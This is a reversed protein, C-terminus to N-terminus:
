KKKFSFSEIRLILKEIFNKKMEKQELYKFRAIEEKTLPAFGKEKLLKELCNYKNKDREQKIIITEKKSIEEWTRRHISVWIFFFIISPFISVIMGACFALDGIGTSILVPIFVLLFLIALLSLPPIWFSKKSNKVNSKRREELIDEPSENFTTAIKNSFSKVSYEIKNQYPLVFENSVVGLIALPKEKYTYSFGKVHDGSLSDRCKDGVMKAGWNYAKRLDNQSIEFPTSSNVKTPNVELNDTASDLINDQFHNQVKRLEANYLIEIKECYNEGIKYVANNKGSYTGSTPRWDIVTREKEVLEEIYTGDSQRVKEKGLYKEKRDYGISASYNLEYEATVLLYHVTETKAPSFKANCIESSIESTFLDVYATRTFDEISCNEKIKAFSVMPQNNEVDGNNYKVTITSEINEKKIKFYVGCANCKANCDDILTVDPAGCQTCLMAKLM